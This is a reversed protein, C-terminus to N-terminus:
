EHRCHTPCLPLVLTKQHQIVLAAPAWYWHPEVAFLSLGCLKHGYDEVLSATSKAPLSKLGTCLHACTSVHRLVVIDAHMIQTHSFM